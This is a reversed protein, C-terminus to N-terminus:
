ARRHPVAAMCMLFTARLDVAMQRDWGAADLADFPVEHYLSAMNVLVDLRGFAAAAQDVTARCAAPDALDAALTHARRGLARVGEAAREAADASTHYVLAVNAGCDALRLAVAAGMRTGGTILAARGELTM